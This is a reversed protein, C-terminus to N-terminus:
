GFWNIGYGDHVFTFVSEGQFGSKSGPSFNPIIKMATPFFSVFGM